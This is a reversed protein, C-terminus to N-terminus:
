RGRGFLRHLKSIAKRETLESWLSGDIRDINVKLGSVKFVEVEAERSLLPLARVALEASDLAVFVKDSAPETLVLKGLTIGAVPFLRLGPEGEITLTRNKEKMARELRTKVFGGDIVLAAAALAVLLLAVLGGAGYAIYKVAKM